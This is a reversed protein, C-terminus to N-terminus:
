VSSDKKLRFNIASAIKKLATALQNDVTKISIQLISSIDKYRLKDEKALKYVLKCRPPLDNIAAQIKQILESNLMAEDPRTYHSTFQYTFDDLLVTATKRLQQAKRLAENRVCIYLYVKLDDIGMLQTRRKWIEVFVDSVIEEAPEALKIFGIAFKKLPGYFRLFLEKYAAEDEYIAIRRQLEVLDTNREPVVMCDHSLPLPFVPVEFVSIVLTKYFLFLGSYFSRALNNYVKLM